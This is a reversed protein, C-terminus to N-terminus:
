QSISVEKLFYYYRLKDFFRFRRFHIAGLLREQSLIGLARAIEMSSPINGASVTRGFAGGLRLLPLGGLVLVLLSSFRFFFPRLSPRLPPRLGFIEKSKVCGIPPSLGVFSSSLSSSTSIDSLSSSVSSGDLFFCAEDFDL